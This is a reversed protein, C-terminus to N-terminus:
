GRRVNPRLDPSAAEASKVDVVLSAVAMAFLEVTQPSAPGIGKETLRKLVRAAAETKDAGDDVAELAPPVVRLAIRSLAAMVTGLRGDSLLDSLNM